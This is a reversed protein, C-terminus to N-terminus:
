RSSLGWCLVALLQVGSLSAEAACLRRSSLLAAQTKPLHTITVARNAQQQLM